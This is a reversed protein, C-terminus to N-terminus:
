RPGPAPQSGAVPTLVPEGALHRRANELFLALSADVAHDSWGGVHPTLLVNDLDLLQRPPEPEGEYVDLAAARITGDRLARSLAATDVISGRAINVLYGDAGLAQLVAGDVAHRTAPGGPAAVLLVDCWRALSRLDGFRPYPLAPQATRSCYGIEMEFALARSAVKRGIHGLGFVGLRKGTIGPPMPLENRWTGGRCARDLKPLERVMALLMAMAHDAVCSDNTGAGNVVTIGRALAHDVAVNEYGAGMACALTLRPLRDIEDAGLGISGNTLVIRVRDGHRAIAEARSAADPAYVVEYSTAFRAVRVRALHLLVLLVPKM